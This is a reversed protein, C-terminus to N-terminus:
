NGALFDGWADHNAEGPPSAPGSTMRSGNNVYLLRALHFMNEGATPANEGAYDISRVTYGNAIAESNWADKALMGLADWAARSATYVEEQTGVGQLYARWRYPDPVSAKYAALFNTAVQTQSSSGIRSIARQINIMRQRQNGQAETKPNSPIKYIRAYGRKDYVITEGFAGSAEMSFLAGTTKAM